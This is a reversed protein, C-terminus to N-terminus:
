GRLDSGARVGPGAMMIWPSGDFLGLSVRVAGGQLASDISTTVTGGFDLEGHMLAVPIISPHMTVIEVKLGQQAFLGQEDAIYMPMYPMAVGPLGLHITRLERPLPTSAPAAPPESAPVAGSSAASAAPRAAAGPSAAPAAPACGAFIVVLLGVAVLAHPRWGRPPPLSSASPEM